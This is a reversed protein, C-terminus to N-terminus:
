KASPLDEKSRETAIPTLMQTGSKEIAQPAVNLLPTTHGKPESVQKESLTAVAQSPKKIRRDNTDILTM